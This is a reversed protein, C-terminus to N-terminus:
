LGLLRAVMVPLEDKLLFVFFWSSADPDADSAHRRM